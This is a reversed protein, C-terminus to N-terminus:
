DADGFFIRLQLREGNVKLIEVGFADGAVAAHFVFGIEFVGFGNEAEITRIPFANASVKIEADFEGAGNGGLAFDGAAFHAALTLAVIFFAFIADGAQVDQAVFECESISGQQRFYRLKPNRALTTSHPLGRGSQGGNAPLRIRILRCTEVQWGAVV